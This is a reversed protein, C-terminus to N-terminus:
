FNCLQIILTIKVFFFNCAHFQEFIPPGMLLPLLVKWCIEAKEAGSNESKGWVNSPLGIKQTKVVQRRVPLIRKCEETLYYRILETDKQQARGILVV